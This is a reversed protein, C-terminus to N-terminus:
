FDRQLRLRAEFAEPNQRIGTPLATPLLGPANALKQNLKAYLFELGIDLGKVPTFIFQGGVRYESANGIGGFAWDTTRTTRGYQTNSYSGFVITHITPTFYHHFAGVVSYQSTKELRYSNITGPIYVSVADVNKNQFGTLFRGLFGASLNANSDTYLNAGNSYAGELWLDDGAALMPLKIQVGAQVAYGSTDRQFNALSSGTGVLTNVQHYAGSLQASGWAQDARLVGVFDPIRDGAYTTAGITGGIPNYAALTAATAGTGGAGTGFVALNGIGGRRVEPAEMSITASFGGGFTATYALVQSSQDSNALAEYNYNDAYFDFFSQVRGATIGAFQIYGKDLSSSNAIGSPGANADVGTNQTLEFRIFTRLTGYGTQTRADINLRGRARFGTLDEAKRRQYLGAGTRFGNIPDVAFGTGAGTFMRGGSLYTYEARIRGSVQLCTDTGPIYFFGAGYADCIRVYEVPAAKRSPLDAAQAGAVACTGAASALLLSKVLKM